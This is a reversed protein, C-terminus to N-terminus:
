EHVVTPTGITGARHAEREEPGWGVAIMARNVAQREIRRGHSETLKDALERSTISPNAVIAEVVRVLDIKSKGFTRFGSSLRLTPRSGERNRGYGRGRLWRIAEAANDTLLVAWGLARLRKAWALGRPGKPLIASGHANAVMPPPDFIYGAVPGAMACAINNGNLWDKVVSMSDFEQGSNPPLPTNALHIARGQSM